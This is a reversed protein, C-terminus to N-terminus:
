TKVASSTLGAVFLRSTFLFLIVLPNSSLLLGAMMRGYGTDCQQMSSFPAPTLPWMKRQTLTLPPAWFTARDFDMLPDITHHFATASPAILQGYSRLPQTATALINM